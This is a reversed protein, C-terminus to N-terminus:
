KLDLPVISSGFPGRWLSESRYVLHSCASYFEIIRDHTRFVAHTSKLIECVCRYHCIQTCRSEESLASGRLPDPRVSDTLPCTRPSSTLVGCYSLQSLTRSFITLDRTRDRTAASRKCKKILRGRCYQSKIRRERKVIFQNAFSAIPEASQDLKRETM